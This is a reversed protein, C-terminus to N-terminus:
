FRFILSPTMCQPIVWPDRERAFPKLPCQSRRRLDKALILLGTKCFKGFTNGDKEQFGYQELFFVPAWHESTSRFGGKPNRDVRTEKWPVANAKSIPVRRRLCFKQDVAASVCEHSRKDTSPQRESQINRVCRAPSRWNSFKKIAAFLKCPVHSPGFNDRIRSLSRQM